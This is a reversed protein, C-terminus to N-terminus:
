TEKHKLRKRISIIMESIVAHLLSCTRICHKARKAKRKKLLVRRAYNNVLFFNNIVKRWSHGESGACRVKTDTQRHQTQNTSFYFLTTTPFGAWFVSLQSLYNKPSPRDWLLSKLYSNLKLVDNTGSPVVAPRPNTNGYLFYEYFATM